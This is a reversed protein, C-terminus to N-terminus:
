YDYVHEFEAGEAHVQKALAGLESVPLVIGRRVWAVRAQLPVQFLERGGPVAVISANNTLVTTLITDNGAIETFTRGRQEVLALIIKTFARYRPTEIIASGDDHREILKIDSTVDSQDFDKVVSRITLAAPALAAAQAILKAYVAKVGYEASLAFRRELSRVVSGQLIPTDSWFAKLTQGFPFEYWPTQQLFMAYREATVLAFTDEPTRTSGRIWETLRGITTEYLGKMGMEGTFSLGIIYLMARVDGTITGQSSAIASISCLNQWYGVISGVYDFASEDSKRLVGAFDEYAHVISWEPYTLYTDVVNRQHEKPLIPQYSSPKAPLSGVCRTETWVIPIAALLLLVVLAIAARKLWKTIFRVVRM